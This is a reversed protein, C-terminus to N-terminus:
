LFLYKCVAHHKGSFYLFIYKLSFFFRIKLLNKPIKKKKQVLCFTDASIFYINVSYLYATFDTFSVIRSSTPYINNM